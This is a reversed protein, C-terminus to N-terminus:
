QQQFIKHAPVHNCTTLEHKNSSSSPWTSCLMVARRQTIQVLKHKDGSTGLHWSFQSILEKKERWWSPKRWVQFHIFFPLRYLAYHKQALIQGYAAKPWPKMQPIKVSATLRKLCNYGNGPLETHNTPEQIKVDQWSCPAVEPCNLISVWQVTINFLQHFNM